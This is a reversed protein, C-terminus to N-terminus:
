ISNIFESYSNLNGSWYTRLMKNMAKLTVLESESPNKCMQIFDNSFLLNLFLINLFLIKKIM